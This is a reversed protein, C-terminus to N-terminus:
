RRCLAFGLLPEYPYCQQSLDLNLPPPAFAASHPPLLLVTRPHSARTPRCAWFLPRPSSCASSTPNQVFANQSGLVLITPYFGAGPLAKLLSSQILSGPTACVQCPLRPGHGGRPQSSRATPMRAECAPMERVFEGPVICCGSRAGPFDM